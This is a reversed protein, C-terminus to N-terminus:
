RPALLDDDVRSRPRRKKMKSLEVRVEADSVARVTQRREEHGALKFLLQLEHGREVTLRAPTVGLLQGGIADVIQAGPPDSTV